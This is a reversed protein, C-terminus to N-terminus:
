RDGEDIIEVNESGFLNMVAQETDFRQEDEKTVSLDYRVIKM